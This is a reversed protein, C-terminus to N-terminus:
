TAQSSQGPQLIVKMLGSEGRYLRDFWSPGEELPAVAGILPEVQIERSALRRIAEAMEGSFACSGQLHIERTVVSQLPLSVEPSVNGVLVVSGGKRVASVALQVTRSIGVVEFAADAGQGDTLDLLTKLPDDGSSNVTHNAGLKTALKLRNNDLDVAIIRSWGVLRLTQIVLLGIMGSGVVVATGGPVVPTRGGAHAAVSVPEVMAAHKFSLTEPLECLIRAPVAVYEAFAGHRRYSGCSVGLVMRNDCLNTRGSRCYNCRGCSITSDFAVRAGPAFGSVDSGVKEIVGAAEHGMILPPIRRGSSGDYGHVDSGCIGCARVRVLVEDGAIQPVPQEVIELKKLDSLLLAKM